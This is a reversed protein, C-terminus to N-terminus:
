RRKLPCNEETRRDSQWSDSLFTVRNVPARRRRRGEQGRRNSWTLSTKCHRRVFRCGFLTQSLKQRGPIQSFIWCYPRRRYVNYFTTFKSTRFGAVDGLMNMNSWKGLSKGCRKPSRQLLQGPEQDRLAIDLQIQNPHRVGISAFIPPPGLLDVSWCTSSVTNHGEFPFDQPINGQTGGPNGRPEGQTGRPNGKPEIPELESHHQESINRHDPCFCGLFVRRQRKERRALDECQLVEGATMNMDMDRIWRVGTAEKLIGQHM